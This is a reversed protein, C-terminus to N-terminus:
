ISIYLSSMKTEGTKEDESKITKKMTNFYLARLPELGGVDKLDSIPVKTTVQREIPQTWAIKEQPQFQYEIVLNYTDFSFKLNSVFAGDSYNGVSEESQYWKDTTYKRLKSLVWEETESQSAESKSIPLREEISENIDVKPKSQRKNKTGTPNITRKSTPINVITTKTKTHTNERGWIAGCHPCKDGVKAYRSVAGGCSGCSKTITTTEYSQSFTYIPNFSILIFLSVLSPLRM